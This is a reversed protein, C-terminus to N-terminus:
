SGGHRGRRPLRGRPPPPNRDRPVPGQGAHGSRRSRSHGSPRYPPLRRLLPHGPPLTGGLQYLRQMMKLLLPYKAERALRMSRVMAELLRFSLRLTYGSPVEAPSVTGIVSAPLRSVVSLRERLTKVYARLEAIQTSTNMTSLRGDDGLPWVMGPEVQVPLTQGTRRDVPFRAGSLGIIPSGTTASAHHSDTDASAIDDLLQTLSLLGFHGASSVTNPVHVLPIFDFGLNLHDLVDGDAITRFRAHRLSLADVTDTRNVKELDWEAGTLYCTVSSPRASWPYIRTATGSEDIPGFEYTVRRLTAGRGTAPDAPVQPL